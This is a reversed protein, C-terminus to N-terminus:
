RIVGEVFTYNFTYGGTVRNTDHYLYWVPDGGPGEIRTVKYSIPFGAQFIDDVIVGFSAPLALMYYQNDLIIDKGDPNSWKLGYTVLETSTM